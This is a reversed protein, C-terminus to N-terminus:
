FENESRIVWLAGKAALQEKENEFPREMSSPKQASRM